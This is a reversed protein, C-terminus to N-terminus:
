PVRPYPVRPVRGTLLDAILGAKTAQLKALEAEVALMEKDVTTLVLAICDQEDSEPWAMTFEALETRNIKPFGSRMSVSSAFRSFPEGLVVALLFRSNVGAIPRLPYMDASCLGREQMLVAKRLYPRIKSYVVDGANFVYKGSIAEQELATQRAILRGTGSEVHDPAVLIWDSYPSLRPDVQGQPLTVRSVLSAVGWEKPIRGLPSDTFQEPHAIPDRLQGNEDLGRTLLDHLLGARVQKLKAIVAESRVIADDMLRFISGIKRQTEPEPLWLPSNAVAGTPLGYRTLGNSQQGFYRSIRHQSLQKTLFVSDVEDKKPRIMALHYGCVLDDGATDIMVPIGIDDPTESDKTIIIDGPQLGFREIEAITATAHMFEMDNTIYENKYVDTYNCLRVPKESSKSLKDVSSFRIDAVSSM